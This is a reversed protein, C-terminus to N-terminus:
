ELFDASENTDQQNSFGEWPARKRGGFIFQGKVRKDKSNIYIVYVRDNKKLNVAERIEKKIEELFKDNNIQRTIFALSDGCEVARNSDLWSYMGQYDGDVGLDYSIWIAKKM